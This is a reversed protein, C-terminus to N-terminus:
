KSPLDAESSLLAKVPSADKARAIVWARVSPGGRLAFRAGRLDATAWWGEPQGERIAVSSGSLDTADGDHRARLAVTVDGRLSRPGVRVTVDRALLDATGDLGGDGLDVSL